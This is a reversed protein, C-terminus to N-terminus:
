LTYVRKSSPLTKKAASKNKEYLDVFYRPIGYSEITKEREEGTYSAYIMDLAKMYDGSKVTEDLTPDKTKSASKSGSASKDGTSGNGAATGSGSVGKAALLGSKYAADSEAKLRELELKKADTEASRGAKALEAAADFAAKQAKFDRDYEALYENYLREYDSKRSKAADSYMAYERTKDGYLSKLRDDLAKYADNYRGYAAEYLEPIVDTLKKDYAHKAMSASSAAYSNAYGGTLLSGAALADDYSRRGRELYNAKYAAYVPDSELSYSFEKRGGLKRELSDLEDQRSYRFDPLAYEYEELKKKAASVSGSPRYVFAGTYTYSM